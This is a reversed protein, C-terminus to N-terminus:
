AAAAPEARSALRRRWAAGCAVALVALACSIVIGQGGGEVFGYSHLGVGLVFNVGYWAMLVSMFCVVSAFVLGFTNVWGAFRGHLPVLYVLLTILAWVEKPDWGWFRGWSYDAWVGGLITGAACLLVGVQMARYVFNALPKIRASTAQMAQGRADSKAPRNAAFRARLDTVSPRALTAVGGASAVALSERATAGEASGDLAAEDLAEAEQTAALLVARAQGGFLSLISWSLGVVAVIWSVYQSAVAILWPPGAHLLGAAAGAAGVGLLALGVLGTAAPRRNALEGATAYIATVALMGGIATIVAMAYFAASSMLPSPLTNQYSGYLGLGGAIALPLGLVLPSALTALSPTRRYTATLYYGVALLGLGLALAFAAYSSVITLVHITLWYNSRLVPQLSGITPDLLAVNAALITALLAVGSAALAPYVKRSALELVLGIISTVLAVWIVTEYMNTVPAWGSIRVRLYFGYIELAIGGIMGLMGVTYLTRGLRSANTGRETAIGLCILLLFVALGYAKPAHYFPAFRNFHSERAMAAPAPYKGMAGGLDRAASALRRAEADPLKGPAAKEASEVARFATRFAGVKEAPFGAKALEADESELLVRLPVWQSKERLWHSFREDFKANGNGPLDRDEPQLDDLYDALTDSVNQELPTLGVGREKVDKKYAEGTFSLYSASDPRPVVDIDLNPIARENHDRIAQYYYLRAGVEAVKEELEPLKRPGEMEGGGQKRMVEGFWDLFSMRQGNVTVEANELESPSVWKSEGSLRAELTEVDARDGQSLSALALVPKLDAATPAAIGAIRTLVERDAASTAPKAAITNLLAQIKGGLVQSMLPSSELRIFPQEDWYDPRAAWDVIAAVPDWTERLEGKEDYLKIAQRSYISKVKNIAYTHLPKVRGQDMLAIDGLTRYARSSSGGDAGRALNTALAALLFTLGLQRWSRM